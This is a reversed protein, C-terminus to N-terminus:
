IDFGYTLGGYFRWEKGYTVEKGDYDKTFRDFGYSANFFLDTPFIYYSNMHIRIEAGAGKKLHANDLGGDWADGLDGHLSFFIKDIYLQGARTDINRFLPFRYTLNFWGVRNGSVAYFPYAKMGPMGGLYFDFFDPVQQGFINGLRLKATLTNRDWLFPIHVQTNLELQNFDYNNYVPQLTGNQVTYNGDPNFQNIEYNYTLDLDFGIPNIEMDVTPATVDYTYKVQFNSGLLYNDSTAPYLTQDPLIFSGLNASYRSYIYRFEINQEPSFVIQKAALDMEFLNYSVDTPITYDYHILNGVTDAGFQVNTNAERSISYLELSLEPKIGLDFLFPLRDNYNLILFLDHELRANIAAGAFMSYRDLMDTSSVYVGPKIKDFFNNTTNYNDYRIFPFFTLKTFSGSYREVSDDPVKYDDYHLLKNMDFNKLDGNPKDKGLPPNNVWEYDHGPIVQAQQQPTIEFIKFGTSTYGAYLINGSSDVSPMFAGGIVNTLQKKQKTELNYSYLNFIGTSDSCYIINGNKEFVPNREDHNDKIVFEFNRANTDVKAISRNTAYSYDFIIYSNDNSYKPQYVQEGNNFFTLQKFNKGNIDVTALNTTGDKEFLFVIHKGDKSVSPQNARLGFTLRTEKDTDTDYVYLDHINDWDPNDDGLKTYIIKHTGPIWSLTSTVDPVLLKDKNTKLDYLYIGSVGFYDANKNSIYIFKTGDPSFQPFFNGFGVKALTDGEVLNSLVAQSRKKYSQTVFDKWEEYVDEGSKGLADKMAASMTFNTWKGLDQSIARLKDEGYKQSIYRTLAFGANYVSENGLSTKDFIGMQNWTLMKGDLAYCRLVMDRHSDWDDYHFDKRNYQATGEAFWSPVNVTAIPYSVIFNPYGYLIDPRREDEYNLMQLFVAPVQRTTKMASQIQVMHTFEHTIVNRLWNHAGRLDFDLASTWIEIKNDFFYTAGNSYDDIDKIVFHVIGPDYHYLSSLPGWVEDAIKAAIKATREAGKHFHVVVHKGKITYWQLEPHFEVSQSFGILQFFIILLSVCCIRFKV